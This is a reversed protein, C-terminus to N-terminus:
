PRVTALLATMEQQDVTRLHPQLAALFGTGAVGYGALIAGFPIGANLMTVAWTARLRVIRLPQLADPIDARGLAGALSEVRPYGREHVMPEDAAIGAALNTVLAAYRDLIPVSRAQRGGIDVVVHGHHTGIHRACVANLESARLGAGLGLGVAATLTRRLIQTRQHYACEVLWNAQEETYPQVDASDPYVPRPPGWAARRTARRGIMSLTARRTGRSAPALQPTWDAIYHEITTPTFLVEVDLPYDLDAAWALFATAIQMYNAVAKASPATPPLSRRVCDRVLPGILTWVEDAITPTYDDIAEDVTRNM